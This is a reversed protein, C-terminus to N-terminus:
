WASSYAVIAAIDLAHDPHTRALAMCAAHASEPYRACRPLMHALADRAGEAALTGAIRALQSGPDASISETLDAALTYRGHEVFLEIVQQWV